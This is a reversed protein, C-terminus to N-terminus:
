QNQINSVLIYAILLVVKLNFTVKKPTYLAQLLPAMCENAFANIFCKPINKPDIKMYDDFIMVLEKQDELLGELNQM